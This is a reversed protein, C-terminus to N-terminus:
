RRIMVERSGSVIDGFPGTDITVVVRFVGYDIETLVLNNPINCSYGLM